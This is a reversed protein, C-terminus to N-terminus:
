VGSDQMGVALSGLAVLDPRKPLLGTGASLVGGVGLQNGHSQPVM